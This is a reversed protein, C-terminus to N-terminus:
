AWDRILAYKISVLDIFYKYYDTDLRVADIARDLARIADEYAKRVFAKPEHREIRKSLLEIRNMAELILSETKMSKYEM